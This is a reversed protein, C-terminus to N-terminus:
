LNWHKRVNFNGDKDTLSDVALEYVSDFLKDSGIYKELTKGSDSMKMNMVALLACKNYCPERELEYGHKEMASKWQERSWPASPVMDGVIREAEKPTLYNKWRISELKNLFEEAEAPKNAVFWEFMEKHVQGFVHMNEVKNSSAMMNYLANFEQRMEEATM